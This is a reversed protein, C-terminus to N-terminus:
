DSTTSVQQLLQLILTIHRNEQGVVQDVVGQSAPDRAFDKLGQYFVIIENERRVADRLIEQKTECGTL